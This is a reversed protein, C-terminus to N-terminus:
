PRICTDIGPTALNTVGVKEPASRNRGFLESSFADSLERSPEPDACVMSAPGFGFSSIRGLYWSLTAQILAM